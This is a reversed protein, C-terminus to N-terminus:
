RSLQWVILFFDKLHQVPDGSFVTGVEINNGLSTGTLNASGVYARKTDAIMCKAHLFFRKKNLEGGYHRVTCDGAIGALLMKLMEQSKDGKDSRSIVKVNVGREAARQAFPLIKNVGASDFFPNVMLLEHEASAILECLMPYLGRLGRVRHFEDVDPFSVALDFNVSDARLWPSILPELSQPTLMSTNVRFIYGTIASAAKVPVILQADILSYLADDSCSCYASITEVLEAGSITGPQALLKKRLDNAILDEVLAKM